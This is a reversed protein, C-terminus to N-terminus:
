WITVVTNICQCHILVIIVLHYLWAIPHLGIPHLCTCWLWLKVVVYSSWESYANVFFDYCLMARCMRFIIWIMVTPLSLVNWFEINLVHVPVFVPMWRHWSVDQSVFTHFLVELTMRILFETHDPHRCLFIDIEYNWSIPYFFHGKEIPALWTLYKEM